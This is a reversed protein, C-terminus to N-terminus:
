GTHNLPAKEKQAIAIVEWPTGGVEDATLTKVNWSLADNSEQFCGRYDEWDARPGIWIIQKVNDAGYAQIYEHLLGIRKPYVFIWASAKAALPELVRSGTVTLHHSPPLYRNSSPLVEVGVVNIGRDSQLLLAELLGYGSGISLVLESASPLITKLYVLLPV